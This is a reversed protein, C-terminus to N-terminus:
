ARLRDLWRKRFKAVKPETREAEEFYKPVYVMYEDIGDKNKLGPGLSGRM